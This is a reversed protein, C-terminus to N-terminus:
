SLRIHAATIILTTITIIRHIIQTVAAEAIAVAAVVVV